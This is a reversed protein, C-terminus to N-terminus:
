KWLCENTGDRKWVLSLSFATLSNGSNPLVCWKLELEHGQRLALSKIGTSTFLNEGWKMKRQEEVPFSLFSSTGPSFYNDTLVDTNQENGPSKGPLQLVQRVKKKTKHKTEPFNVWGRKEKGISRTTTHFLRRQPLAMALDEDTIM